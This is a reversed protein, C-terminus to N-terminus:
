KKQHTRAGHQALLRRVQDADDDNVNALVLTAGEKLGEHYFAREVEDSVDDLMDIQGGTFGAGVIPFGAGPAGFNGGTNPIVPVVVSPADNTNDNKGGVVRTDLDKIHRTMLDDMAETAASMSDFLAAVVAM